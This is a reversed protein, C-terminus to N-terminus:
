KLTWVKSETNLYLNPDYSVFFPMSLTQIKTDARLCYAGLFYGCLSFFNAIHKDPFPEVEVIAKIGNGRPSIFASFVYSDNILELMKYKLTEQDEINDFDIQILGSYSLLSKDERKKFTGSCTFYDLAKKLIEQSEEDKCARLAEIKEKWFGNKIAELIGIINATKTPIVETVGGKFFSVEM